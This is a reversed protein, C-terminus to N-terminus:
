APLVNETAGNVVVGIVNLGQLCDLAREYRGTGLDSPRIVLVVADVLSKMATVADVSEIQPGEVLVFDAAATVAQFNRASAVTLPLLGSHPQLALRDALLWLDLHDGSGGPETPGLGFLAALPRGSPRETADVLTVRGFETLASGLNATTLTAGAHPAAAAIWLRRPSARAGSVAVAVQRYQETAAGDPALFFVLRSDIAEPDLKPRRYRLRAPRGSAPEETDVAAVSTPAPPARVDDIAGTTAGDRGRRAAKPRVFLYTGTQKREPVREDAMAAGM